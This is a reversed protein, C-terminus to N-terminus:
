SLERLKVAFDIGYEGFGKAINLNIADHAGLEEGTVALYKGIYSPLRSLVFTSGCTLTSGFNVEPFKFKANQGLLSYNTLFALVAGGGYAKGEIFNLLPTEIRSIKYFTKQLESLYNSEPYNAINTYDAGLSFFDKGGQLTIVRTLVHLDSSNLHKYLQKLVSPTLLNGNNPASL